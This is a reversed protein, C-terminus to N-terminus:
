SRGRNGIILGMVVMALPGSVHLHTALAYGGLVTALTILVEEQYSDISKLMRFTVYGLADEFLAGGGAEELLLQSAGVVTPTEGNVIMAVVFLHLHKFICRSVGGRREVSEAERGQLGLWGYEGGNM